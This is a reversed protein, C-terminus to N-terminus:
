GPSKEFFDIAPQYGQRASKKLYAIGKKSDMKVGKGTFYMLGLYYRECANGDKEYSLAVRFAQAYKGSDYVSKTLACGDAYVSAPSGLLLAFFITTFTKM